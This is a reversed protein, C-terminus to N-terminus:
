IANYSGQNKSLHLSVWYLDQYFLLQDRCNPTARKSVLAEVRHFFDTCWGPLKRYEQTSRIKRLPLQKHQIAQTSPHLPEPLPDQKLFRWPYSKQYGSPYIHLGKQYEPLHLDG